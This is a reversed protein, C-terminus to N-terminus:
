WFFMFQPYRGQAADPHSELYIRYLGFFTPADLLEIHPAKEKLQRNVEVYWAPSKLINRFWHFPLPWQATREIIKQAAKAPNKQNIDLDARLIPMDKYLLSLAGKQWILGNPSFSRYCDLGKQRMGEAYGDIVFGSITIDWRKYYQECHKQWADYGSPLNSIPRLNSNWPYELMGPNLYGAGNDAAVFYDNETATQRMYHMAMPVRRDLVPSIAWMMPVKGRDPNDWLDMTRQYVWSASDYDGVYFIIFRRGDFKVKGYETLYGRDKLQQKTVWKQPYNDQL